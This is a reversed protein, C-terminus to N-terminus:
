RWRLTTVTSEDGRERCSVVNVRVDQGGALELLRQYFGGMVLAHVLTDPSVGHTTVRYSGGTSRDLDARGPGHYARFLQPIREVAMAPTASQM